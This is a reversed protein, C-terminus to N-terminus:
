PQTIVRAPKAPEVIHQWPEEGTVTAYNARIETAVETARDSNCVSLVCGGFGAGVMRSGFVGKSANAAKVLAELEDCSVEYDDRLSTHCADFLAGLKQLEGNEIAQVASKVRENESVVHRCRRYLVDGLASQNAELVDARLDRLSKIQPRDRALIQVATTCEDARSNYHGDPLRHKVGCDTLILGFEPPMPIQLVELSRCDLLIAHGEEACNLTYQDMIGCQVGAYRHEARQCLKALEPGPVSEGAIALLAKAVALELSASSSLGAGLPIDSDILIDAGRLVIGLGELEAAVGKVYEVWSPSQGPQIGDLEFLCTEGVNHSTVSIKRDDRPSAKAWTFIATSMPLVFGDNYDTHEGIINVRAPAKVLVSSDANGAGFDHLVESFRAPMNLGTVGREFVM